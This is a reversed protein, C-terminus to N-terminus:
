SQPTQSIAELRVGDLGMFSKTGGSGPNAGFVEARLTLRGDVPKFLGLDIPGTAIVKGHEGSYLDMTKAPQGNVLFRVIGYDWSKTAYLTVRYALWKPEIDPVDPAPIELKVFDGPRRAQVWLHADGSWTERAFGAMDQAVVNLGESKEIIKMGECEIVDAIKFPPPLPPPQPIPKRIEATMAQIAEDTLRNSTSGPKAYWYTTAAYAVDCERWHWVEMDFKLSKTFPIADLSRMRTVTTHGWNNKPNGDCRPQAHFPHQFLQPSCWAYGYYDETGTGFHSPFAEGDVYIKEDGEGWWEPVPNMVALNDGVYVGEGQIEVYNWDETGRGGLAHIPYQQRWGAHFHMSRSDWQYPEHIARLYVTVSTAGHNTLRLTGTKEYPMPVHVTMGGAPQIDRWWEKLTNLGVGSGFFDSMPCWVTRQGDFVAELVLSRLRAESLVEPSGFMLRTVKHPGDPLVIEKSQGPSLIERLESEGKVTFGTNVSTMAVESLMVRDAEVDTLRRPLSTVLTGAAYTRYNVQYYFGDQDCTIKCHEAYPIPLYLNWGRATEQAYPPGIMTESIKWQGGLVEQMPAEIVPNAERDLYVRLTGKPNASWIRVVAGPGDMDALVWEKRVGDGARVEEVRLFQSFDNNAFWTEVKDASVSARDYSSFQKCTYPPDPFRAIADRDVMERLLSEITIPGPEARALGVSLLAAVMAVLVLPSRAIMLSKFFRMM